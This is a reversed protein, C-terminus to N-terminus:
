LNDPTQRNTKPPRDFGTDNRHRHVGQQPGRVILIHNFIRAAGNHDIRWLIRRFDLGSQCTGLSLRNGQAGFAAAPRELTM